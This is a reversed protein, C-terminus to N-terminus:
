ATEIQMTMFCSNPDDTYEGFPETYGFGEREYLKRAPIFYDEVGTELSIRQYGRRKGEELLFQILTKAVGKHLHRAHTRLSKLEGHFPSLEKMAVCGVVKTGDLAMWATVDEAQLSEVGLAHVSELPSTAYMDALHERILELFAQNTFDAEVIKM